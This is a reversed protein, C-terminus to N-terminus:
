EDDPIKCEEDFCVTYYCGGFDYVRVIFRNIGFVGSTWPIDFGESCADVPGDGGAEVLLSQLASEGIISEGHEAEEEGAFYANNVAAGIADVIRGSKPILIIDGFDGGMAATNFFRKREQEEDGCWDPPDANDCALAVKGRWRAILTLYMARTGILGDSVKEFYMQLSDGVSKMIIGNNDTVVPSLEYWITRIESLTIVAGLRRILSGFSGLDFLFVSGEQIYMESIETTDISDYDGTYIADFSKATIDFEEWQKPDWGLGRKTNSKSGKTLKATSTIGTVALFFLVLSPKNRYKM